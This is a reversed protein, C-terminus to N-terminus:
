GSPLVLGLDEVVSGVDIERAQVFRLDDLELEVARLIFREVAQKQLGLAVRQM